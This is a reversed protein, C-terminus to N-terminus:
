VPITGSAASAAIPTAAAWIDHREPSRTFNERSSPQPMIETAAVARTAWRWLPMSRSKRVTHTRGTAIKSGGSYAMTVGM